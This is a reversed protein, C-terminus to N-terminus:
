KSRSGKYRRSKRGSRRRSSRRGGRPNELGLRTMDAIRRPTNFRYFSAHLRINQKASDSFHGPIVYTPDLSLNIAEFLITDADSLLPRGGYKSM